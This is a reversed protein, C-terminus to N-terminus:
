VNENGGYQSALSEEDGKWVFPERKPTEVKQLASPRMVFVDNRKARGNAKKKRHKM